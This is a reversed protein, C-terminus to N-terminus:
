DGFLASRLPTQNMDYCGGKYSCSDGIGPVVPQAADLGQPATLNADRSAGEFDRKQRAGYVIIDDEHPDHAKIRVGPAAREVDAETRGYSFWDDVHAFANDPAPATGHAKAKAAAHSASASSREAELAQAHGQQLSAAMALCAFLIPRSVSM